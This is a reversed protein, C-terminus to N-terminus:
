KQKTQPISHTSGDGGWEKYNTLVLILFPTMGGFKLFLGIICWKLKFPKIEWVLCEILEGHNERKYLSPSRTGIYFVLKSL